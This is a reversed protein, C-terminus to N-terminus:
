IQQIVILFKFSLLDARKVLIKNWGIELINSIAHSFNFIIETSEDKKLYTKSIQIDCSLAQVISNSFSQADNGDLDQIAINDDSELQESVESSDGGDRNSGWTVVSGDDKLAAFSYDNSYITNVSSELQESVESSDGGM